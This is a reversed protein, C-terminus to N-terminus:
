RMLKVDEPKVKDRYKNGFHTRVYNVVNAIQEDDLYGALSPMAKQGKVIVGVPYGATELNPNGALAPYAGAGVAGKADPMHCGQCVGRYIEEGTRQSFLERRSYARRPAAPAATDAIAPLEATFLLAIAAAARFKM